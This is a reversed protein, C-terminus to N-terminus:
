EKPPKTGGDPKAPKDSEAPKTPETKPQDPNPGQTGTNEDEM